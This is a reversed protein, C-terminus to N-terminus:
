GAGGGGTVGAGDGAVTYDWYPDQSTGVYTENFAQSVTPNIVIEGVMGTNSAHGYYYRSIVQQSNVVDSWTQNSVVNRSGQIIDSTLWDPAFFNDPEITETQTWKYLLGIFM